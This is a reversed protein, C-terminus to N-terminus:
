YRSEQRRIALKKRGFWQSKFSDYLNKEMFEAGYLVDLWYDTESAEKLAIYMKTVFDKDSQGYLCESVNAGISTGSRLLQKSMVYEGQDKTLYKYLKAIRIAFAKSKNQLAGSRGMIIYNTKCFGLLRFAAM